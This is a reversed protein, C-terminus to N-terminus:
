WLPAAAPLSGAWLQGGPQPPHVSPNTSFRIDLRCPDSTAHALVHNLFTM